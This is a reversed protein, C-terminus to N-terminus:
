GADGKTCRSGAIQEMCSDFKDSKCYEEDRPDIQPM